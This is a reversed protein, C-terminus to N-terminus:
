NTPYPNLELQDKGVVLLWPHRDPFYHILPADEIPTFSHAWLIKSQQFDAVNYVWEDDLLHGPTYKVFILHRGTQLPANAAILDARGFRPPDTPATFHLIIGALFGILCLSGAIKGLRRWGIITILLILPMVPAAYHPLFWSEALIGLAFFCLTIWIWADLWFLGALLPLFIVIPDAYISLLKWLRQASIKSFGAPTRLQDYDGREWQTHVQRMTDDRYAPESRTPLFWFKPYVDYQASYEVTPMRVIHGTIRFNYYGMAAAAILLLAIGWIFQPFKPRVRNKTMAYLTTALVPLSLILGEYPRSNALVILGVALVMSQSASPNRKWRTAAGLLLAAGFVAVAGGWYVEGWSLLQPHLAAIIGGALSWTPSVFALLMWYIAIAAAATCLWVGLIPQNALIQGIALVIGQGPPYKSMYTPRVLVHPSEFHEWFPPTPNTLRGHAFTDAALLYSFEDQVRPQPIGNKIAIICLTALSIAGVILSCLLPQRTWKQLASVFAPTAIV